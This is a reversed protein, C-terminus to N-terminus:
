AKALKIVQIIAPDSINIVLEESNGFGAYSALWGGVKVMGSLKLGNGVVSGKLPGTFFVKGPVLTRPYGSGHVDVIINGSKKDFRGNLKTLFDVECSCVTSKSKAIGKINGKEVELKIVGKGQLKDSISFTYFLDSRSIDFNSTLVSAGPLRAYNVKSEGFPLLCFVMLILVCSVFRSLRIKLSVISGVM